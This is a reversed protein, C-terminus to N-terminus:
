GRVTFDGFKKNLQSGLRFLTAGPYPKAVTHDFIQATTASGVELKQSVPSSLIGIVGIVPHFGGKSLL